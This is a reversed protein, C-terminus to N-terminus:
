VCVCVSVSVCVCVRVYERRGEGLVHMVDVVAGCKHGRTIAGTEEGSGYLRTSIEVNLALAVALTM